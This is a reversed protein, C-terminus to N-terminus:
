LLVRDLRESTGVRSGQQTDVERFIGYTIYYDAGSTKETERINELKKREGGSM